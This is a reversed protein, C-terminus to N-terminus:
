DLVAGVHQVTTAACGAGSELAASLSGGHMHCGLFGAAFADGAGTTDVVAPVAVASVRREQSGRFAVSGDVGLTVIMLKNSGSALSRIRKILAQQGTSLGFFAVDIKPLYQLLHDFDPHKAFDAFDVAVKGRTAAAMVSDFMARNQQFVPTVLLDADEVLAAHSERLRFDKLIGEEYRVFNKEGDPEIEIFQVPTAGQLTEFHCAIGRRLVGQRAINAEEDNGTAAVIHIEDDAPFSRLALRAFNSTIGGAIKENTPLYLDVGCDGVCVIKM